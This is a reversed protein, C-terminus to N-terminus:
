DPLIRVVRIISRYSCSSIKIGDRKNSAHVIQGNGIYIAVHGITGGHGYFFLDGPKAESAKIRTGMQAQSGSYHPLSYGFQQYVKMTFGSCDIGNTLSTGGWVYRNGVYKLAFQVLKIRLDSVGSGFYLESLTMGKKLEYSITCYDAAVYGEDDDVNVKVWGDLIEVIELQEGKGVTTMISSDTSPNSRVRLCDTTVTVVHRAVENVLELAEDGYVLYEASIYGKCNGSEIRAWGNEIEFVECGCNNTLKGVIKGDKSPEERVNLNGEVQVIGLNIYGCITRNGDENYSILEDAVGGNGSMLSLSTQNARVSAVTKMLQYSFAATVGAQLRNNEIDAHVENSLGAFSSTVIMFTILAGAILKRIPNKM